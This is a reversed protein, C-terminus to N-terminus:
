MIFHIDYYLKLLSCIYTIISLYKMLENNIENILETVTLVYTDILNRIM